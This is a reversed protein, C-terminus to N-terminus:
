SILCNLSYSQLTFFFRVIVGEVGAELWCVLCSPCLIDLLGDGFSLM